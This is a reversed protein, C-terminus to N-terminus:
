KDAEAGSDRQIGLNMTFRSIWYVLGEEKTEWFYGLLESNKIEVYVKTGAQQTGGFSFCLFIRSIKIPVPYFRLEIQLSNDKCYQTTWDIFMIYREM